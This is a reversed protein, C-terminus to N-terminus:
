KSPAVQLVTIQGDKRGAALLQGNLNFAMATVEAGARWEGILLHADIDWIRILGDISASAVLRGDNSIAAKLPQTVGSADRSRQRPLRAIIEVKDYDWVALHHPRSDAVVGRNALGPFPAILEGGGVQKGTGLHYTTYMTPGDGSGSPFGVRLYRGDATLALEEVFDVSGPEWKLDYLKSEGLPQLQWVRVKGNLSLAALRGNRAAFAVADGKSKVDKLRRGDAAYREFHGQAARFVEGTDPDSLPLDETGQRKYFQRGSLANQLVGDFEGAWGENLRIAMHFDPRKFSSRVLQKTQLSWVAVGSAFDSTERFYAAYLDNDQGFYLENPPNVTNNVHRTMEKTPVFKAVTTLGTPVDALKFDQQMRTTPSPACRSADKRVAWSASRLLQAPVPIRYLASGLVTEADRGFTFRGDGNRQTEAIMLAFLSQGGPHPVLAIARAPLAIDHGKTDGSTGFFTIKENDTAAVWRGLPDAAVTDAYGGSPMQRPSDCQDLREVMLGANQNKKNTVGDGTYTLLWGKGGVATGPRMAGDSNPPAVSRTSIEIGDKIDWVTIGRDVDYHRSYWENVVLGQGDGTFAISVPIGSGSSIDGNRRSDFIHLRRGSTVEWLQTTEDNAGSALLQGDWSFALASIGGSHGFFEHLAKKEFRSRLILRADMYGIAVVSGDSNLALATPKKGNPPITELPKVQDVDWIVIDDNAAIHAAIRGDASIALASPQPAVKGFPLEVIRQVSAKENTGAAMTWGTLTFLLIGLLIFLRSRMHVVKAIPLM